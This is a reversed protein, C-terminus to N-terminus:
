AGVRRLKLVDFIWVYAMIELWIDTEETFFRHFKNLPRREFEGESLCLGALDRATNDILDINRASPSLPVPTSISPM